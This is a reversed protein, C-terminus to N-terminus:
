GDNKYDSILVGNLHDMEHQVIRSFFGRARMEIKDGYYNEGRLVVWQARPVRHTEGPISLCGEEAWIIKESKQIIVPNVIIDIKDKYDYIFFRRLVGVQNAALGVGNSQMMLLAMEDFVSWVSSQFFTEKTVPECVSRLAPDGVTRIYFM